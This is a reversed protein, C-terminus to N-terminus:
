QDTLKKKKKMEDETIRAIHVCLFTIEEAPLKLHYKKELLAGIQAACRFQKPYQTKMTEYIFDEGGSLMRNELLRQAFFLLHTIFRHYHLSDEDFDIYFAFRVVHIAQQIIQTMETTREMNCDYEANVIHLAIAGAEDEPLEVHMKEKIVHLAHVGISYEAVYLKRIEWRLANHFTIGNRQREAAFSIHDTLTIYINKNLEKNLVNHAYEVIQTSAEIAGVEVEGLLQKLRNTSDSTDMRFIKEVKSEDVVQGKRSRWGIGKGWLLIEQKNKDLTSVLNNNLVQYIIVTRGGVYRCRRDAKGLCVHNTWYFFVLRVVYFCFSCEKSTTLM